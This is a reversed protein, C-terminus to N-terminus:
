QRNDSFWSINDGNKVCQYPKFYDQLSIDVNQYRMATDGSQTGQQKFFSGTFFRYWLHGALNLCMHGASWNSSKPYKDWIDQCDM